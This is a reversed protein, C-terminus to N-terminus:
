YVYFLLLFNTKTGSNANRLRRQVFRVIKIINHQTSVTLSSSLCCVVHQPQDTNHIKLKKRKGAFIWVIKSINLM